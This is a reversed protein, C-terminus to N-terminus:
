EQYVFSSDNLDTGYGDHRNLSVDKFFNENIGEKRVEGELPFYIILNDREVFLPIGKRRSSSLLKMHKPDLKVDWVALGAVDMNSFSNRLFGDPSTSAGIYLDGETRKIALQNCGKRDVKGDISFYWCGKEDIAFGIHHWKQDTIKTNSEIDPVGSGFFAFVPHDNKEICFTWGRNNNGRKWMLFDRNGSKYRKVWGTVTVPIRARIQPDDEVLIYDEDGSFHVAAYVTSSFFLLFIAILIRKM